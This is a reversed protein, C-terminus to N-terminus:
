FSHSVSGAASRSPPWFRTLWSKGMRELGLLDERTIAYIDGSILGEPPRFVRWSSLDSFSSIPETKPCSSGSPKLSFRPCARNICRYIYIRVSFLDKAMGPMEGASFIGSREM